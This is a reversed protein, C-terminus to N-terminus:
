VIKQQKAREFEEESMGLQDVYVEHNHAGMQTPGTWRVKGPTRSLLPFVNQMRVKGLDPDDVSVVSERAIVQADQMLEAVDYVPGIAAEAKEFKTIVIDRPYQHIWEAVMTDVEDTHQARAQPTSYRADAALEPGGVLELVRLAISNTSASVAVWRGDSCEYLNRPGGGAARNGHRTPIHGMQDFLIPQAGLIFFLPEYLSVDIEQGVGAGAVDRHYIAFMAGFLGFLGAIGDALALPPLTPPGDALGTMHAFGTMAEALTGFGARNKYPGTQGFGSVRVMVLGPNIESLTDYGIGWREMTGPRFAEILIDVDKVLRKLLGAGEPNGLDLTICRKNRAHFKWALPVSNKRMGANRLNDGYTPHEVKIVDAGFDALLTATTPGAYLQALDLVKLGVLPMSKTPEGISENSM